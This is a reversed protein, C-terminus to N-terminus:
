TVVTPPRRAPSRWTTVAGPFYRTPATLPTGFICGTGSTPKVLALLMRLTTTKGAGNPGIFGAVVGAPVRMDLRDVVIRHGYRKTLATTEIAPAAAVSRGPHDPM